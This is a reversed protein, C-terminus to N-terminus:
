IGYTGYLITDVKDIAMKLLSTDIVIKRNLTLKNGYKFFYRFNSSKPDIDHFELVVVKIFELSNTDLVNDEEFIRSIYEWMGKLNHLGEISVDDQPMKAIINKFLLELYQRYLFVIPFINAELFGGKMSLELLNDASDKYGAIYGYNMFDKTDLNKEIHQQWGIKVFREGINKEFVDEGYKFIVAM